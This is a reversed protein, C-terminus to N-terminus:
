DKLEQVVQERDSAVVSLRHDFHTRTVAASYCVDAVSQEPHSEIHSAYNRAQQGLATDDKASLVLLYPGRYIALIDGKRSSEESGPAEELIMHVNTGSFGFASVGAIRSSYYNPWATHETPIRIRLKDWRIHPSRKKLHLHAPIEGNRICLVSKIVSAVGAAAELHGINTKVSGVIVPQEDTRGQRVIEDLAHIEVPDGLVTGTGHAEVYGIERTEVGAKRIAERIVASQSPGNPATLGNSQGDQNIASGRIIAYIDNKDRQADAIRKLVLIGCGEGRGYGDASADFTKCRGDPSIAKLKSMAIMSRPSLILNVGGVIATESERARLSQCAVHIAVLASSCATDIAMCPGKLGLTYSIRGAATSAVTGTGAYADVKSIVHAYDVNSIGVFVGTRKNFLEEPRIGANELTEWTVELLLRQQPDLSEAEKPAIGFFLADFQDVDEIAGINRVYYKYDDGPERDYYGDVNWRSIPIEGIADVGDKLIEWFSEPSNAGGPFRCGMGVIAIEEDGQYTISTDETRRENEGALFLSLAEINPYDFALSASIERNLWVGLDHSLELARLSDLGYRYLPAKLSITNIDVKLITSLRRQIWKAIEIASMNRTINHDSLPVTFTDEEEEDFANNLSSVVINLRSNIYAEKTPRRQIKGSSTKLITGKRILCVDFTALGHKELITKFINSLLVNYDISKLEDVEQVVVLLEQGNNEISFAAGCGRRLASHVNQVTYEIDQPHHNLGRIIITDKIRGAIFLEEQFFFGLDGTRLFPGEGTDAIAAQFTEKTDEPRNWYGVAVNGGSYWIEGIIGPHCEKKTEPDVIRIDAGCLNRGCGVLTRNRIKTDNPISVKGYKLAVEGFDCLLPRINRERGSIILTAEAMGYCPSITEWRFGCSNFAKSFSKLTSGSIPEAGNHFIQWSSLDLSQKDNENIRRVCLDLAFNPGLSFVARKNSITRLWCLPDKLMSSPPILYATTGNYINQFLAGILGMDHYPPLWCVSPGELTKTISRIMDSNSILNGQSIMVGKPTGTSGSTYQLLAISNKDLKPDSWTESDNGELTDTALLTLIQLEPHENYLGITLNKVLESCLAVSTEADRAIALMRPLTRPLGTPDPPYCPVAIAGAYLCGYLGCIYDIGPPYLLLVREQFLGLKQLRAAITKARADLQRYTISGSEHEGDELFIFATKDQQESARLRLVDVFTNFMELTM